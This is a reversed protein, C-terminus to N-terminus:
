RRRTSFTCGSSGSRAPAGAAIEAVRLSSTNTALVTEPGCAAAVAALLERKLELVEPVAEIVLECGALDSLETTADLLEVAADGEALTWRNRDVGKALAEGIREQGSELAEADSDYVLTEFEGLAALQAIGGGMTGAGLIGIRTVTM